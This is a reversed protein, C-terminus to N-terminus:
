KRDRIIKRVGGDNAYNGVIADPAVKRAIVEAIKAMTNHQTELDQFVPNEMHIIFTNGGFTKREGGGLAKMQGPTFVGEDKRLIAPIELPGIGAHFRPAHAFLSTPTHGIEGERGVIGGKHLWSM